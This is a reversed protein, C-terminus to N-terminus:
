VKIKINAYKYNFIIQICFLYLILYKQLPIRTNFYIVIYLKFNIHIFVKPLNNIISEVKNFEEDDGSGSGSSGDGKLVTSGVQALLLCWPTCSEQIGSPMRNEHFM